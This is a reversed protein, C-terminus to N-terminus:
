KMRNLTTSGQDEHNQMLLAKPFILGSYVLLAVNKQQTMSLSLSMDEASTM